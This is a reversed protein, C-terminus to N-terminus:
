QGVTQRPYLLQDDETEISEELHLAEKKIANECYTYGLHDLEKPYGKGIIKQTFFNPQM